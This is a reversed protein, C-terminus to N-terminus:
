VYLSSQRVFNEEWLDCSFLSMIDNRPVDFSFTGKLMCLILLNLGDQVHAIM